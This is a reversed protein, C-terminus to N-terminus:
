VPKAPSSGPLVPENGTGASPMSAAGAGAPKDGAAARDITGSSAGTGQEVDVRTERVTDRVTETRDAVDKRVVVEETARATKAVVPEEHREIVEFERDEPLAANSAPTGSIPRHEVVITEDHLQVEEEVDRAVAYARVRFRRETQRKGVELEEKVLPVAAEESAASGRSTAAAQGSSSAAANTPLSGADDIDIPDCDELLAQIRAYDDDRVHVSLATRGASLNDKYWTRDEDPAVGFLWDLLGGEQPPRTAQVSATDQQSASLRLDSAPLGASLLRSRAEDADAYSQFVAVLNHGAM